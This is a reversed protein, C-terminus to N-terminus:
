SLVLWGREHAVEIFRRVDGDIVVPDAGPHAACLASVIAPLTRVGDCLALIAAAAPNLQIMGEPYLLVHGAQAPEWQLRFRRQLRPPLSASPAPDGRPFTRPDANM